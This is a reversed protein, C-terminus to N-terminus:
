IGLRDYIRVAAIRALRGWPDRTIGDPNTLENLRDLLEAVVLLEEEGLVPVGDDTRHKDFKEELYAARQEPTDAPGIDFPNANAETTM